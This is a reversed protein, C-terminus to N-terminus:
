CMQRHTLSLFIIKYIEESFKSRIPFSNNVNKEKIRMEELHYEFQTPGEPYFFKSSNLHGDTQMIEFMKQEESVIRNFKCRKEVYIAVLGDYVNMDLLTM